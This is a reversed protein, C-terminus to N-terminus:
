VQEFSPNIITEASPEPQSRAVTRLLMSELTLGPGFAMSLISKDNDEKKLEKLLEKLVFLITASSMNGYNALVSYAHRNAIKPIALEEEIVELIRKGGPHIAYLDIPQNRTAVKSLLKTMLAKIGGKILDPVYGSLTMEFGSDGIQWTMDDKGKPEIDCFFSDLRLAKDGSIRGTLLCAAAGDGFIANSVIQDWDGSNQYHITCLEVSVILVVAEPNARCFADATKLANFVAYCGMFNISTRSTSGALGLYHIIEIDLGPAYMGTCSVTIVHTIKQSLTHSVNKFCDELAKKAIPLAEKQYIRMRSQTGPFPSIKPDGPFFIYNDPSLGFDQLVSYRSKIGTARYLAELRIREEENLDISKAMFDTLKLQDFCHDPTATGISIIYSNM